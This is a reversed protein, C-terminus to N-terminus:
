EGGGWGGVPGACSGVGAPGRCVVSCQGRAGGGLLCGHVAGGGCGGCGGRGGCGRCCLNCPLLCDLMRGVRRLFVLPRFWCCHGCGCGNYCDAQVGTPYGCPGDPVTVYNRWVDTPAQRIVSETPATATRSYTQAKLSASLLVSCAAFVIVGLRMSEGGTDDGTEQLNM